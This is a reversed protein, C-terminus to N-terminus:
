IGHSGDTHNSLQQAANKAWDLWELRRELPLSRPGVDCLLWGGNMEIEVESRPETATRLEAVDILWQRVSDTLVGQATAANGATVIWHEDLESDGTIVTQAAYSSESNNLADGDGQRIPDVSTGM